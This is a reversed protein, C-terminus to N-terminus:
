YLPLLSFSVFSILVVIKIRQKVNHKVFIEGECDILSRGSNQWRRFSKLVWREREWAVVKHRWQEKNIITQNGESDNVYENVCTKLLSLLSQTEKIQLM